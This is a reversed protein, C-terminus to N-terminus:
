KRRNMSSMNMMQLGPVCVWVVSCCSRAKPLSLHSTEGGEVVTLKRSIVIVISEFPFMVVLVYSFGSLKCRYRGAAEACGGPVSLLKVTPNMRLYQSM